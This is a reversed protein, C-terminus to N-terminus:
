QEHTLVRSSFSFTKYVATVDGNQIPQANKGRTHKLYDLSQPLGYRYDVIGLQFDEMNNFELTFVLGNCHEGRCIFYQSDNPTPVSYSGQQNEGVTIQEIINESNIHIMFQDIKRMSSYRLTLQSSNGSNTSAIVTLEPEPIALFGTEIFSYERKSWPRSLKQENSFASEAIIKEQLPHRTLIQISASDGQQLYEFNIGQPHTTSFSNQQTCILLGALSISGVTIILRRLTTESSNLLIPLVLLTVLSGLFGFVPAINFGMADELLLLMPFVLVAMIITSVLAVVSVLLHNKMQGLIFLLSILVTFILLPLLPLYSFGSLTFSSVMSLIFLLWAPALLLGWFDLKHKFKNAIFLTIAFPFLWIAARMPLPFSLWPQSQGSVSQAIFLILWSSLTSIIVMAFAFPITMVLQTLRITKAALLQWCILILLFGAIFTFPITMYEPWVIMFLSLIDTYVANGEPLTGLDINLLSVLMAWVNDGQHQVSGSSLNELNDLPTHYHSVRGQFAFNVGTIGYRKFVTFDTDNPLLKYIEYAISNSSPEKAFQQYRKILPYNNDGTEFLLSKGQNGRAEMNIVVDVQKALPHEKMFAEAGLLGAEEGENILIILDNKAPPMQSLLDLIELIIAVAHGADAAGPGAPVSDYHAMLLITQSSNTGPIQAIINKVPACSLTSRQNNCGIASQVEVQLGSDQLQKIITQRFNASATSNVPHPQNNEPLIKALRNITSIASFQTSSPAVPKPPLLSIYSAIFLLILTTITILPLQNNQKQM